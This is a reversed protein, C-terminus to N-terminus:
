QPATETEKVAEAKAKKLKEEQKKIEDDSSVAKTLYTVAPLLYDKIGASMLMSGFKEFSISEDIKSEYRLAGRYGTWLIATIKKISFKQEILENLLDIVATKTMEELECLAEFTPRLNYNKGAISIPFDGRYSNM